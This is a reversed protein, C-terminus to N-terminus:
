GLTGAIRARFHPARRFDDDGRRARPATGSRGARHGPPRRGRRRADRSACSCAAELEPYWRGLPFRRRAWGARASWDRAAEPQRCRVFENSSRAASVRSYARGELRAAAAHPEGTTRTPSRRLGHRGLALPLRHGRPVSGRITCINYTARERRHQQEARALTLLLGAGHTGTQRRDPGAHQPRVARAYRLSRRRGGYAAAPRLEAKGSRSTREARGPLPSARPRASPPATVVLGRVAHVARRDALRRSSALANRNPRDRRSRTPGPGNRAGPCRGDMRTSPSRECELDGLRASLVWAREYHPHLATVALVDPAPLIRPGHSEEATPPRATTSGCEAVELRPARRLDPSSSRRCREQSVEPQYPTPTAFESPPSRPRGRGPGCASLRRESFCPEAWRARM